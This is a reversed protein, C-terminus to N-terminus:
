PAVPFGAGPTALAREIARKQRPEHCGLYFRRLAESAHAGRLRGLAEILASQLRYDRESLLLGALEREVDTRHRALAGLV